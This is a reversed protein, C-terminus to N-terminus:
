KERLRGSLGTKDLVGLLLLGGIYCAALQGIGIELGFLGFAPWFGPGPASTYALVAGVIVANVLVPPLLALWRSKCRATLLGALLTALSGFVVDLVNIGLPNLLNALLCGVFLGGVTYPAIFPLITLAESLRIQVGQYSIPALLLCLAAYAAAIVACITLRKTNM